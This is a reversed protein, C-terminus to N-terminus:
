NINSGIIKSFKMKKIIRCMRRIRVINGKRIFGVLEIGALLGAILLM